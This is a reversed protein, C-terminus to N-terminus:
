MGLIEEAVGFAAFRGFLLADAATDIEWLNSNLICLSFIFGSFDVAQYFLLHQLDGNGMM